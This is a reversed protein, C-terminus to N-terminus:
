VIRASIKRGNLKGCRKEKILIIAHLIARRQARTLSSGHVAEYVNLSKLQAFEAMLAAEAYKRHKQIGAEASMQTM